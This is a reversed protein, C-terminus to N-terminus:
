PRRGRELQDDRMEDVVRDDCYERDDEADEREKLRDVADDLAMDDPRFSVGPCICAEGECTTPDPRPCGGCSECLEAHCSPCTETAPQTM